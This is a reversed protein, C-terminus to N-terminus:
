TLFTTEKRKDGKYQKVFAALRDPLVQKVVQMSVSCWREYEDRFSPLDMARLKEKIDEGIMELDLALGFRLLEGKNMLSKLEDKFEKVSSETAM